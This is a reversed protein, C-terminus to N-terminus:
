KAGGKRSGAGCRQEAEEDWIRMVVLHMDNAERTADRLAQLVSCSCDQYVYGDRLVNSLYSQATVLSAAVNLIRRKLMKESVKKM